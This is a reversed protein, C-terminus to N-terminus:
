LTTKYICTMCQRHRRGILRRRQDKNNHSLHHVHKGAHRQTHRTWVNLLHIFSYCLVRYCVHYSYIYIIIVYYVTPYMTPEVLSVESLFTQFM